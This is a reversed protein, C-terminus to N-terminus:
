VVCQHYQIQMVEYNEFSRCGRCHCLSYLGNRYCRFVILVFVFNLMFCLVNILVCVSFREAFATILYGALPEHEKRSRFWWLNPLNRILWACLPLWLKDYVERIGHKKSFLLLRTISSKYAYEDLRNNTSLVDEVISETFRVMKRLQGKTVGGYQSESTDKFEHMNLRTASFSSSKSNKNHNNNRPTCMMQEDQLMSLFTGSNDKSFAFQLENDDSNDSQKQEPSIRRKKRLPRRTLPFDAAIISDQIMQRRSM